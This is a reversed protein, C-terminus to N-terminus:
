FAVSSQNEDTSTDGSLLDQLKSYDNVHSRKKSGGLGDLAPKLGNNFAFYATKLRDPVDGTGRHKGRTVGLFKQEGYKERDLFTYTFLELDMDTDLTSNGQYKANNRMYLMFDEVTVGSEKKSRADGNLQWPNLLSFGNRVAWNRTVRVKMRKAEGTVGNDGMNSDPLKDMYDLILFKLNVGDKIMSDVTSTLEQVSWLTPDAKITIFRMGRCEMSNTVDRIVCELPLKNIREKLTDKDSDDSKFIKNNIDYKFDKPIDEEKVGIRMMWETLTLHQRFNSSYLVEYANRYFNDLKDELSILMMTPRNDHENGDNSNHGNNSKIEDPVSIDIDNDKESIAKWDNAISVGVSMTTCLASKFNHSMAGVNCYEGARIGGQLMKDLGVMGVSYPKSDKLKSVAEVLQEDVTDSAFDIIMTIAESDDVGSFEELLSETAKNIMELAQSKTTTRKSISNSLVTIKARMIDMVIEERLEHLLEKAEELADGRSNMYKIKYTTENLKDRISSLVISDYDTLMWSQLGTRMLGAQRNVVELSPGDVHNKESSIILDIIHDGSLKLERKVKSKSSLEGTAWRHVINILLNNCSRPDLTVNDYNELKSWSKDETTNILKIITKKAIKKIDHLNFDEILSLLKYSSELIVDSIILTSIGQSEKYKRYDSKLNSM